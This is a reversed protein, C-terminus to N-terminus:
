RDAKKITKEERFVKEAEGLPASYDASFLSLDLNKIWITGTMYCKKSEIWETTDSMVPLLKRFTKLDISYISLTMRMKGKRRKEVMRSRWCKFLKWKSLRAM